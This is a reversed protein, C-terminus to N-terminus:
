PPSGYQPANGRGQLGLVHTNVALDWTLTLPVMWGADRRNLYSPSLMFTFRHYHHSTLTKPNPEIRAFFVYFVRKSLKVRM